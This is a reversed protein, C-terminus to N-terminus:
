TPRKRRHLLDDMVAGVGARVDDAPAEGTYHQTTEPRKHGLTTQIVHPPVHKRLMAVALTRRFTHTGHFEPLAAIANIRDQLGRYIRTYASRLALVDDIPPGEVVLDRVYNWGPVRLLRRLPELASAEPTWTRGYGGKQTIVTQGRQVAEEAERRSIRLLDNARLGSVLLALYVDRLPPPEKKSIEEIITGWEDSSLPLKPQPTAEPSLVTALEERLGEVRVGFLTDLSLGQGAAWARIQDLAELMLDLAARVANYRSPTTAARLPMLLDNYALGIGIVGLYEDVTRASLQRRHKKGAPKRNPIYERVLKVLPHNEYQKRDVRKLKVGAPAAAAPARVLDLMGEPLQNFREM